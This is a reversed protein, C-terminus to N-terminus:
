KVLQHGCDPCFRMLEVHAAFVQPGTMGRENVAPQGTQREICAILNAHRDPITRAMYEARESVRVWDPGGPCDYLGLKHDCVRRPRGPKRAM